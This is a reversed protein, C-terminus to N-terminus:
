LWLNNIFRCGRGVGIIPVPTSDLGIISVGGVLTLRRGVNNKYGSGVWVEAM